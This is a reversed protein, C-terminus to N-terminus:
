KTSKLYNLIKNHYAKAVEWDGERPNNLFEDLKIFKRDAWKCWKEYEVKGTTKKIYDRILIGTRYVHTSVLKEPDRKERKPMNKLDEEINSSTIGAYAALWRISEYFPKGSYLSIFDVVNGQFNCGFCYFKNQAESIFFSATREEGFMHVPLPCKLRHTFEGSRCPMFDIKYKGLIDLIHVKDVLIDMFGEMEFWPMDIETWDIMM